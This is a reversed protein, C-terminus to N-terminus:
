RSRENGSTDSAFPQSQASKAKPLGRHEMFYKRIGHSMSRDVCTQHLDLLAKQSGEITFHAGEGKGVEMDGIKADAALAYGASPKEIARGFLNRLAHAQTEHLNTRSEIIVEIRNKGEHELVKTRFSNLIEKKLVPPPAVLKQNDDGSNNTVM